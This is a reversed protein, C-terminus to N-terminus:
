VGEIVLNTGDYQEFIEMSLMSKVKHLMYVQKNFDPTGRVGCRYYFKKIGKPHKRLVRAFLQNSIDVDSSCRLDFLGTVNNDSFGLIGRQVVVLANYEGDKFQKVKMNNPDNKSHSLAVKFGKERLYYAVNNAERINLVAVMIKSLDQNDEEAHKLMKIIATGANKRTRISVVDLDVSSFVNYYKLAEGSIFTITYNDGEKNLRNFISPSGTMLVQHKPKYKKIINQVMKKLYFEHCEDVVLLDIEDWLLNDIGQPIGIQVQPLFHFDNYKKVFPGYMFTIESFPTKLSDLYQNKLLNQGHTLVLVKANPYKQIYKQIIRHSIATKGCGPTGALVAKQGELADQLVKDAVHIQYDYNAM